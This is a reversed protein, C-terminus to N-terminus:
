MIRFEKFTKKLEEATWWAAHPVRGGSPIEEHTDKDIYSVAYSEYPHTNVKTIVALANKRPVEFIDGIHYTTNM